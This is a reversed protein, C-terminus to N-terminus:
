KSSSWIRRYTTKNTSGEQELVGADCLKQLYRWVTVRSKGTLGMAKEVKIQEHNELYAIIPLLKKYDVQKLVQKLVQKMTENKQISNENIADDTTTNYNLNRLTVTFESRFSRFAPEMGTRFNAANEYAAKIKGLGSGQREMYGLRSFIDALVPNRRTSPITEINRGQIQTGDPMGGPSYIELRDDFIDIHVESGYILYDRHIM